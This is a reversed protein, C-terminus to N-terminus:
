DITAAQSAALQDAALKFAAMEAHQRSENALLSIVTDCASAPRSRGFCSSVRLLFGGPKPLVRRNSLFFSNAEIQALVTTNVQQQYNSRHQAACPPAHARVCGSSTFATRSVLLLPSLLEGARSRGHCRRATFAHALLCRKAEVGSSDGSRGEGGAVLIGDVALRADDGAASNPRSIWLSMRMAGSSSPFSSSSLSSSSPSPFRPYPLCCQELSWDPRLVLVEPDLWFLFTYTRRQQMALVAMLKFSRSNCGDREPWCGILSYNNAEAFQIKTGLSIQMIRRTDIRFSEEVPTLVALFNSGRFLVTNRVGAMVDSAATSMPDCREEAVEDAAEASIALLTSVAVVILPSFGVLLAVLACLCRYCSSWEPAHSRRQRRSSRSATSALPQLEDGSSERPSLGNDLPSAASTLNCEKLENLNFDRRIHKVSM